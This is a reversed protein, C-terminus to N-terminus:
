RNTITYVVSDLYFPGTTTRIPQGNIKVVTITARLQAQNGSLLAPIDTTWRGSSDSTTSAVKPRSAGQGIYIDVQAEPASTGSIKTLGPTLPSTIVPKNQIVYTDSNAYRSDTIAKISVTHGAKLWGGVVNENLDQHISWNGNQDAVTRYKVTSDGDQTLLITASAEATGSLTTEGAAAPSTIRPKKLVNYIESEATDTGLTERVQVTDGLNLPLIGVDWEGKNNSTVLAREKLKGKAMVSVEIKSGALSIGAVKNDGDALSSTIEPKVMITYIKSDAYVTGVTARLQMTNGTMLAPVSVSWSGSYSNALVTIPKIGQGWVDVRSGPTAIGSVTTAGCVLQSTIEPAPMADYVASDMYDGEASSRLQIKDNTVLAPVTTEWYGDKNTVATSKKPRISSPGIYVEIDSGPTATGSIKTSGVAVSSTLEPKEVGIRVAYLPSTSSGVSAYVTHGATLKLPLKKTWEGTATTYTSAFLQYNLYIDVYTNPLATGYLETSGTTISSTIGPQVSGSVIPFKISDKFNGNSLTARLQVTKGVGPLPPTKAVWNGRYDATGSAVYAGDVWIDVKAGPVALGSVVRTDPTLRSSLMPQAQTSTVKYDSSFIPVSMPCIALLSVTDNTELALGSAVWQGTYDATITKFLKGKVYVTVSAGPEANGSILNGGAVLPSTVTPRAQSEKAVRTASVSNKEYDYRVALVTVTDNLKLPSVEATWFGRKNATTIKVLSHSIFVRIEADPESTGAITTSYKLISSTIITPTYLEGYPESAKVTSPMTAISLIVMAMILMLTIGLKKM